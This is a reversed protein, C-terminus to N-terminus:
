IQRIQFFDDPLASYMESELGAKQFHPKRTANAARM